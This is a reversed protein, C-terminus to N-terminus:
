DRNAIHEVDWKTKNWIIKYKQGYVLMYHSAEQGETPLWIQNLNEYRNAGEPPLQFKVWPSRNNRLYFNITMESTNYIFVQDSPIDFLMPQVASTRLYFSFLIFFLLFIAFRRKKIM